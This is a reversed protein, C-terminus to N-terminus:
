SNNGWNCAFVWTSSMTCNASVYLMFRILHFLKSSTRHTEDCLCSIWFKLCVQWSIRDLMECESSVARTLDSLMVAMSHDTAISRESVAYMQLGEPGFPFVANVSGATFESQLARTFSPFQPVWHRIIALIGRSPVAVLYADWTVCIYREPIGGQAPILLLDKM